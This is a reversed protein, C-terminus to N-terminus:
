EQKGDMFREFEGYAYGVKDAFHADSGYVYPLSYERSLALIGREPYAGVDGFGKYFPAANIELAINKEEMVSFIERILGECDRWTYADDKLPFKEPMDFIWRYVDLHTIVHFYGSKAAALYNELVLRAFEGRTLKEFPVHFGKIDLHTSGLIVDFEGASLIEEIESTCDPHYDIEIGTLIRIRDAYEESLRKVEACYEGVKGFPIRDHEDGTVTFPMHDTFVIERFGLEIAHEIFERGQWPKKLLNPHMHGDRKIM